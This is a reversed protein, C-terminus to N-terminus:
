ILIMGRGGKKEKNSGIPKNFLISELALNFLHCAEKTRNSDTLIDENM